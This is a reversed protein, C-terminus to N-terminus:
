TDMLESTVGTQSALRRCTQVAPRIAMKNREEERTSNLSEGHSPTDVPTSLLGEAKITSPSFQQFTRLLFFLSEFQQTSNKQSIHWIRRSVSAVHFSLWFDSLFLHPAASVSAWWVLRCEPLEKNDLIPQVTAETQRCIGQRAAEGRTQESVHGAYLSTRRCAEGPVWCQKLNRNIATPVLRSFRWCM